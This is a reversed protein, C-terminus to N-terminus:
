GHRCVAERPLPTTPRWNHPNCTFPGSAYPDCRDPHYGTSGEFTGSQEYVWALSAGRWFTAAIAMREGLTTEGWTNIVYLLASHCHADFSICGISSGCDVRDNVEVSVDRYYEGGRARPSSGRWDVIVGDGGRWVNPWPMGADHAAEVVLRTLMVMRATVNCEEDDASVAPWDLVEAMRGEVTWRPHACNDYEM